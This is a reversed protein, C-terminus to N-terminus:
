RTPACVAREARRRQDLGVDREPGRGVGGDRLAEQLLSPQLRTQDAREGRPLRAPCERNARPSARDAGSRDDHAAGDGGAVRTRRGTRAAVSAVRRGDPLEDVSNLYGLPAQGYTGGVSAKQHLGRKVNESTQMSQFQNQTAIMSEYLFAAASDDGIMPETISILKAGAQRVLERTQWHDRQNRAWRSLSWVIVYDVRTSAHRNRERLEDLMALFGTRKHLDVYASKGPDSFEAVIEADLSLSKDRVGERQANISLGEDSYDTKVQGDSSVRLYAFARKTLTAADTPARSMTAQPM